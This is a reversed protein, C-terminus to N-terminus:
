NYEPGLGVAIALDEISTLDFNAILWLDKGDFGVVLPDRNPAVIPAPRAVAMKKLLFRPAETMLFIQKGFVGRVKVIETRIEPPILGEFTCSLRITRREKKAMEHLRELVDAYCAAMPKPLRPRVEKRFHYGSGYDRRGIVALEFEPSSLSFLVLTPWGNKNRWQLPELTLRRYNACLNAMKSMATQQRRVATIRSKLRKAGVQEVGLLGKLLATGDKTQQALRKSRRTQRKVEAESFREASAIVQKLLGTAM